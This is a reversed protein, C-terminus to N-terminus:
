PTTSFLVHIKNSLVSKETKAGCPRGTAGILTINPLKDQWIEGQDCSHDPNVAGLAKFIEFKLLIITGLPHVGQAIRVFNVPNM